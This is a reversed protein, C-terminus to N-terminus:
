FNVKTYDLACVWRIDEGALGEVYVAARDNPDDAALEAEPSFAPTNSTLTPTQPGLSLISTVGAIRYILGYFNGIPTWMAVDGSSSKAVLSGQLAFVDGDQLTLYDAGTNMLTLEIVGAGSSFGAYHMTGSQSDGPTTFEGHGTANEGVHDALAQFGRARAHAATVSNQLGIASRGNDGLFMVELTSLLTRLTGPEGAEQGFGSGLDGVIRIGPVGVSPKGRPLQASTHGNTFDAVGQIIIQFGASLRVNFPDAAQLNLQLRNGPASDNRIEGSMEISEVITLLAGNTCTIVGDFLSNGGAGNWRPLTLNTSSGPGVVNGAAPVYYEIDTAGANVRLAKLANGAYAPLLNARAAPATTAGTGGNPITVPVTLPAPIAPNPFSWAAKWVGGAKDALTYTVKEYQATLTVPFDITDAGQAAVVVPTPTANVKAITFTAGEPCLPDTSLPLIMTGGAPPASTADAQFVKKNDAPDINYTDFPPVAGFEVPVDGLILQSSAGAGGAGGGCCNWEEIICDCDSM